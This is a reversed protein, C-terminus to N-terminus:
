LFFFFFNVVGELRDDFEDGIEVDLRDGAYEWEACGDCVM